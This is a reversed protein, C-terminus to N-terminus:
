VKRYNKLMTKIMQITKDIQAQEQPSKGEKILDLILSIEDHSFQIGQKNANTILAMLVPVLANGSKGSTQTVATKLLETKLPDIGKLRPDNLWDIM